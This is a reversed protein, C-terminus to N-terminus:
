LLPRPSRNGAFCGSGSCQQVLACWLSCQQVEAHHEAVGAAQVADLRRHLEQLLAHWLEGSKPAAVHRLLVDLTTAAVSTVGAALADRSLQASDAEGQLSSHPSSPADICGEARQPAWEPRAPSGHQGGCPADFRLFSTCPSCSPTCAASLLGKCQVGPPGAQQVPVFVAPLTTALLQMFRDVHLAQLTM